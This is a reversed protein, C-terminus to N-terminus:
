IHHRPILKFVVQDEMVLPSNHAFFVSGHIPSLINTLIEGEYPDIIEALVDGFTVDDGPRVKCKIIGAEPAKVTHLADEELISSIYGGHTHFKIIGMRSLFRLISIVAEQASQEDIQDTEKTYVSFAHTNSLQWNYNLTTTDFARPKRTLVYKLGFLTALSSNEYGTSMMRVHPIFDGPMYFSAFQIGYQFEKVKEFLGAAIRLTTEGEGNGPFMRNIDTNDLPWFRKGINMAHHNVSPVVMIQNDHLIGGKKELVKLARILQSCIYLQQSENGRMPGVICAAKDGNGGFRYGWIQLDNRYPSKLTYIIEKIM